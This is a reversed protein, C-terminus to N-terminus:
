GRQHGFRTPGRARCSPEDSQMQLPDAHEFPSPVIRFKPVLMHVGVALLRRPFRREQAIWVKLRHGSERAKRGNVSGNEFPLDPDLATSRRALLSRRLLASLAGLPTIKPLVLIEVLAAM